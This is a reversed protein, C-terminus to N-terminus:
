LRTIPVGGKDDRDKPQSGSRERLGKAVLVQRKFKAIHRSIALNSSNRLGYSNSM